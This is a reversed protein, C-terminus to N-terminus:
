LCSPCTEVYIRVTASSRNGHADSVQLVINVWGKPAAPAIWVANPGDGSISGLEATWDYAYSTDPDDVLAQIACSREKFIRWSDGYPKFQDTDLAKLTFGLIAPPRSANVTLPIAREEVSGYTDEVEVTIWHLGLTEPAIWIVAQGQGFLDGETASWSFSLEDGDVDEAECRVYVSAGPVVWGVDDGLESEMVLIEPANNARVALALSSESVGGRGDSVSIFVRYLGETEPAHWQIDPGDGVIEGGSASWSYVLVDGDPDVAACSVPTIALPMIRDTAATLSTIAPPSNTEDNTPSGDNSGLTRALWGSHIGIIAAVVLIVAAATVLIATKRTRNPVRPPQEKTEEPTESM